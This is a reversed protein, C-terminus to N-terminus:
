TSLSGDWFRRRCMLGQCILGGGPKRALGGDGPSEKVGGPEGSLAGTVLSAGNGSNRM